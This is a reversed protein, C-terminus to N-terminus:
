RVPIVKSLFFVELPLDYTWASFWYEGASPISGEYSKNVPIPDQCSKGSQAFAAVSLLGLMLISFFRRIMYM